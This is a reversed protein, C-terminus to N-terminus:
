DGAQKRKAERTRAKPKEAEPERLEVAGPDDDQPPTLAATVINNLRDLGDRIARMEQVMAHAYEDQVTVPAPLDAM